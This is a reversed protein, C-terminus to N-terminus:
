TSLLFRASKTRKQPSKAGEKLQIPARTGGRNGAEGLRGKPEGLKWNTHNVSHSM